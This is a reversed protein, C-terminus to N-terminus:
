YVGRNFAIAARWQMSAARATARSSHQALDSLLPRAQHCHTLWSFLEADGPQIHSDEADYPQDEHEGDDCYSGHVLDGHSIAADRRQCRPNAAMGVKHLSCGVEQDHQDDTFQPAVDWSVPDVQSARHKDNTSHHM